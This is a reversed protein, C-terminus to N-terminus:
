KLEDPFQYIGEAYLWITIYDSVGLYTTSYKLTM